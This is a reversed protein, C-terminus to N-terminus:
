IQLRGGELKELATHERDATEGDAYRYGSRGRTRQDGGSYAAWGGHKPSRGNGTLLVTGVDSNRRAHDIVGHLEEVTRPRSANRAEPRDSAIRVISNARGEGTNRHYTIDTIDSFGEVLRWQSADLPNDTSSTRTATM